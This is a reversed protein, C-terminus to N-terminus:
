FMGSKDTINVNVRRDGDGFLARDLSRGNMNNGSTMVSATVSHDNRPNYKRVYASENPLPKLSEKSMPTSAALQEPSDRGMIAVAGLGAALAGLKGKNKGMFRFSESEYTGYAKKAKNMVTNMDVETLETKFLKSQLRADLNAQQKKFKDLGEGIQSLMTGGDRAIELDKDVHASVMSSMGSEYLDLAIGDMKHKNAGLAEDFIGHIEIGYQKPTMAGSRFLKQADEFDNVLGRKANDVSKHSSKLLNETLGHALVREAIQPDGSKGVMDLALNIETVMQTAKSADVKRLRILESEHLNHIAKGQKSDFQTSVNLENVTGKVAINEQVNLLEHLGDLVKTNARKYEIMQDEDLGLTTMVRLHDGDYDKYAFKNMLIQSQPTYIANSNPDLADSSFLVHGLSSGPGQAPERSIQVMLNEPGTPMHYGKIGKVGTDYSYDNIDLGMSSYMQGITKESAFAIQETEGALRATSSRARAFKDEAGGIPRATLFQSGIASRKAAEKTLNNDGSMASNEVDTLKGIALEFRDRALARGNLSSANSLEMDASIAELRAKEIELLISKNNYEKLGSLNTEELGIGISKRGSASNQLDYFLAGNVPKAKMGSNELFGLREEAPRRFANRLISEPNTGEAFDAASFTGRKGSGAILSLEYLASRNPQTMADIVEESHGVSLLQSREIWSMSGQNGAGYIADGVSPSFMAYSVGEKGAYTREMINTIEYFSETIDLNSSIDLGALLKMDGVNGTNTAHEAATMFLDQGSKKGSTAMISRYIAAKREPSTAPGLFSEIAIDLNKGRLSDKLSVGIEDIDARNGRLIKPIDAQGIEDWRQILTSEFAETQLDIAVKNGETWRRKFGALLESANVLEGKTGFTDTELMFFPQTKGSVVKFEGRSEGLALSGILSYAEDSENAFTLGSKSSVGFIKTWDYPVNEADFVMTMKGDAINIDALRGSTFQKSLGTARNGEDYGLIQQNGVTIDNHALWLQRDGRTMNILGEMNLPKGSRESGSPLHMSLRFEGAIDDGRNGITVSTLERATFKDRQAPNALGHGDDFAYTSNFLDPIVNGLEESMHIRAGTSVSKRLDEVGKEKAIYELYESDSGFKPVQERFNVSSAGRTEATIFGPVHLDEANEPATIMGLASNGQYVLPNYERESAIRNAIRSSESREEGTRIRTSLEGYVLQERDKDYVFTNKLNITGGVRKAYASAESNESGMRIPSRSDQGSYLRNQHAMESAAIKDEDTLVKNIDYQLGMMEDSHFKQTVNFSGNAGDSTVFMRSGGDPTIEGGSDYFHGYPNFGREPFDVEGVRTFPLGESTEGVLSIPVTRERGDTTVGLNLTMDDISSSTGQIAHALGWAKRKATEPNVGLENIYYSELRSSISELEETRSFSMGPRQPRAEVGTKLSDIRYDNKLVDRYEILEKRGVDRDLMDQMHANIGEYLNDGTLNKFKSDVMVSLNNQLIGSDYSDRNLNNRINLMAKNVSDVADDFMSSHVNSIDLEARKLLDLSIKEPAINGYLEMLDGSMSHAAYGGIAAGAAMGGLNDEKYQTFAGIGAGAITLPNTYKSIM